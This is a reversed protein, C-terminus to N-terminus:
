VSCSGGQQQDEEVKVEDWIWTMAESFMPVHPVHCIVSRMQFRWRQFSLESNRMEASNGRCLFISFDCISRRPEFQSATIKGKRLKKALTEQFIM